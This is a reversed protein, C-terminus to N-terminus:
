AVEGARAGAKKGSRTRMKKLTESFEVDALLNLLDPDKELHVLDDYGLLFASRMVERAKPVDNMLSYSCALNYLVTADEPRLKALKRDVELGKQYFGEKTYLDGLATLAEIFNPSNKLINEYFAIEFQPDNESRKAM